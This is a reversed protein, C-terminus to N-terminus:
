GDIRARAERFECAVTPGYLQLMFRHTVAHPGFAGASRQAGQWALERVYASLALARVFREAKPVRRLTALYTSAETNETDSMEVQLNSPCDAVLPAIM